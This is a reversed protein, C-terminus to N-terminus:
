HAWIGTRIAHHGCAKLADRFDRQPGPYGHVLMVAQPSVERVIRLLGVRDAHASLTFKSVAAQVGVPTGGVDLTRERRSRAELDLLEAGPSEEDQYGAILLASKPDPLVAKAWPVAPGASLMGSTTVIIGRRFSRITEDRSVAHVREVNEGFIKLPRDTGASESEYVDSVARALGDIRM